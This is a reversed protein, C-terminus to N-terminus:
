EGGRERGKGKGASGTGAEPSGPVPTMRSAGYSGKRAQQSGGAVAEARELEEELEDQMEHLM